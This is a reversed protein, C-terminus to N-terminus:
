DYGSVNKGLIIDRKGVWLNNVQQLRLLGDSGGRPTEQNTEKDTLLPDGEFHYSGLWYYKGDPELLTIHIHAPTNGSPYRGPKLTYFAYKGDAGTKIWGRITGHRSEWGVPNESPKYQGQQNAHYVYLIVGEAPSKGDPQYVTGIVKIKEGDDNFDPLTDVPSLNRDGYEFIAECGECPVGILRPNFANGTQSGCCSAILAFLTFFILRHM